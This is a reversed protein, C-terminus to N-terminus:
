IVVAIKLLRGLLSPLPAVPHKQVGQLDQATDWDRDESTGAQSTARCGQQARLQHPLPAAPTGEATVAPFAPPGVQPSWMVGKFSMSKIFTTLEQPLVHRSKIDRQRPLFVPLPPNSDPPLAGLIHKHFTKSIPQFQCLNSVPLIMSEQSAPASWAAARCLARDLGPSANRCPLANGGPSGGGGEM